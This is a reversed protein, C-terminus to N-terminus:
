PHIAGPKSDLEQNSDRYFMRVSVPWQAAEGIVLKRGDTFQLTIGSPTRKVSSIGGSDGAPLPILATYWMGSDMNGYDHILTTAISRGSLRADWGGIDPPPSGVLKRTVPRSPPLPVILLNPAGRDKTWCSLSDCDVRTSRLQWRVEYRHSNGDKSYVSDRIVWVYPFFTVCRTHAVFRDRDPGWGEEYVGCAWSRLSDASWMSSDAKSPAVPDRSQGFGDVLVASHAATSLSYTRYPSEEYPGGGDDFLIARGHVWACVSLKDQHQHGSGTPGRDFVLMNADAAWSSRFVAWGAWPLLRSKSAPPRGSKGLTALWLWDTREPFLQFAEILIKKIDIDHADNLRPYDGDPALIAALADYGRELNSRLNLPM